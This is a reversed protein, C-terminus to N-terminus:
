PKSINNTSVNTSLTWIPYFLNQIKSFIKSKIKLIKGSGIMKNDLLWETIGAINFKTGYTLVWTKIGIKNVTISVGDVPSYRM